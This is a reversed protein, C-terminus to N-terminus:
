IKRRKRIVKSFADGLDKEGKAYAKYAKKFDKPLKKKLETKTIRRNLFSPLEINLSKMKLLMEERTDELIGVIKNVGLTYKSKKGGKYKKFSIGEIGYHDLIYKEIMRIYGFEAEDECCVFAIDRGEMMGLRIMENIFFKCEPKNLHSMYRLIYADSAGETTYINVLMATPALLGLNYMLFQEPVTDRDLILSCNCILLKEPDILHLQLLEKLKMRSEIRIITPKPAKM